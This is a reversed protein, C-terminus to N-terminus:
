ETRIDAHGSGCVIRNGGVVGSPSYTDNSNWNLSPIIGDDYFTYFSSTQAKGYGVHGGVYCGTWTSVYIPAPAKVYMDAASALGTLGILAISSFLMKHFMIDGKHAGHLHQASMQMKVM